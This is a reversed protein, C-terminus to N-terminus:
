FRTKGKKQKWRRWVTYLVYSLVVTAIITLIVSTAISGPGYCTAEDQAKSIPTIWLILFILYKCM